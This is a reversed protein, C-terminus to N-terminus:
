RIVEQAQILLADPIALRLTKATKLNISLDFATPQQVPLNAPPTGKLIRDILSAADAFQRSMNPGYAMLGGAETYELFPSITPVRYEAALAAIRSRGVFFTPSTVLLVAEAHTDAAARFARALDELGRVPIPHLQAGGGASSGGSLARVHPALASEISVDWLAAVRTVGPLLDELFQVHKDVLDVYLGSLGTANGGPRALSAVLGAQVPDIGVVFVIPITTTARKAALAGTLGGSAFIVDVRSAVLEAVLAPFRDFHGEAWRFEFTLSRGETYGRALLAQRLAEIPPVACTYPCLVGVRHHTGARQAGALLPAALCACIVFLLTPHPPRVAKPTTAFLSPIM